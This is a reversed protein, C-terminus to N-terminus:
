GCDLRLLSATARRDGWILQLMIPWLFADTCPTLLVTTKTKKKLCPRMYDPSARVGNQKRFAPMVLMGPSSPVLSLITLGTVEGGEKESATRTASPWAQLALKLSAQHLNPKRISFIHLQPVVYLAKSLPRSPAGGRAWAGLETGPGWPPCSVDVQPELELSGSKWSVGGAETPARM